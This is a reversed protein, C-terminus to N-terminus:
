IPDLTMILNGNDFSFFWLLAYVVSSCVFLIWFRSFFVWFLSDSCIEFQDIAIVM